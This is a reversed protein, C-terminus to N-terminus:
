VYNIGQFRAHPPDLAGGLNTLEFDSAWQFRVRSPRLTVVLDPYTAVRQSNFGPTSNTQTSFNATGDAMGKHFPMVNYWGYITGTLDSNPGGPISAWKFPVDSDVIPDHLLSWSLTGTQSAGTIAHSDKVSSHKHWYGLHTELTQQPYGYADLTWSDTNDSASTWHIEATPNGVVYSSAVRNTPMYYSGYTVGPAWLQHEFETDNIFSVGAPWLSTDQPPLNPSTVAYAAAYAFPHARSIVHAEVESQTDYATGSPPTWSARYGTGVRPQTSLPTYSPGAGTQYPSDNNIIDDYFFQQGLSGGEHQGAANQTGSAIVTADTVGFRVDGGIAYYETSYYTHGGLAVQSDTPIGNYSRETLRWVIDQPQYWDSWAYFTV